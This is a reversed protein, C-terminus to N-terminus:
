SFLCLDFRGHEHIAVEMRSAGKMVDYHETELPVTKIKINSIDVSM